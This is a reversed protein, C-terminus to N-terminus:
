QAVTTPRTDAAPDRAKRSRHDGNAARDRDEACASAHAQDGAGAHDDRAAAGVGGSRAACARDACSALHRRRPTDGNAGASEVERRGRPRAGAGSSSPDPGASRTAARVFRDAGSRQRAVRDRGRARERGAHRRRDLAM